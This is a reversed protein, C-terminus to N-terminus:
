SNSDWSIGISELGLAAPATVLVAEVVHGVGNRGNVKQSCKWIFRTQGGGEMVSIAILGEVGKVYWAIRIRSREEKGGFM